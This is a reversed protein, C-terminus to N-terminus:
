LGTIEGIWNRFYPVSGYWNPMSTMCQGLVFSADGVLVYEGDVKCALPGGSDGRCASASSKHPRICVQFDGSYYYMQKCYAQDKVEVDLAQLINPGGANWGLEGWGSIVCDRNGSFDQDQSPLTIPQVMDNMKVQYTAPKGFKRSDKDYLGMVIKVGSATQGDTCHAATVVWRKSILSGGCFHWGSNTQFSAQWPYIGPREANEGNVINPSRALVLAPSLLVCLLSIYLGSMISFRGM